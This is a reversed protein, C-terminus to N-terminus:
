VMCYIAVFVNINRFGFLLVHKPQAIGLAMAHLGPCYVCTRWHNLCYKVMHQSKKKFFLIFYFYHTVISSLRSRHVLLILSQSIVVLIVCYWM